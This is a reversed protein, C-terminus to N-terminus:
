GDKPFDDFDTSKSLDEWRKTETLKANDVMNAIYVADSGLLLHLPPNIEEVIKIIATAAKDPNGREKGTHERIYTVMDGVTEKYDDIPELVKM